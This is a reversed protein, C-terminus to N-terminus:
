AWVSLIKRSSSGGTSVNGFKSCPQGEFCKWIKLVTAGRFKELNQARNGRLVYGFKSCPQGEFSKWIKLM